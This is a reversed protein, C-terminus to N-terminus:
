ADSEVFFVFHYGKAACVGQDVEITSISVQIVPLEEFDDATMTDIYLDAHPIQFVM